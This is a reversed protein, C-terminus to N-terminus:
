RRMRENQVHNSANFNYFKEDHIGSSMVEGHMWLNDKLSGFPSWEVDISIDHSHSNTSTRITEM